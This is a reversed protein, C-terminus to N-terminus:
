TAVLPNEEAPADEEPIPEVEVASAAFQQAPELFEADPEVHALLYSDDPLASSQKSVRLSAILIQRLLLLKDPNRCLWVEMDAFTRFVESETSVGYLFYRGASGQLLGVRKAFLMAIKADDYEGVALLPNQPNVNMRFEGKRMSAGIKAKTIDFSHEVFEPTSASKGNGDEGADPMHLAQRDAKKLESSLVERGTLKIRTTIFYQLQHGGPQSYPSGYMVGIKSRLQNILLMTVFHGRKREKAWAATSKSCMIGCLRALEGVTADSASKDLVKQSVLAPISDVVIGCCEMVEHFRAIIDVAQQGHDPELVYLRELDVGHRQAWERDFTREADVWLVMKNPHKRQMERVTRIAITTKGSGEWGYLLTALGEPIGGQLAYDLAFAGTPICNFRQILSGRRVTGAYAENIERM